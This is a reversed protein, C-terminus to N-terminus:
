DEEWEDRLQSIYETAEVGQWVKKGLGATYDTWSLDRPALEVKGKRVQWVVKDGAKVGLMQRAVAPVVVQNKSSLKTSVLQM